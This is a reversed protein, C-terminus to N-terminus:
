GTHQTASHENKNTWYCIWLYQRQTKGKEGLDLKCSNHRADELYVIKQGTELLLNDMGCGVGQEPTGYRQRFLSWVKSGGSFGRLSGIGLHLEYM